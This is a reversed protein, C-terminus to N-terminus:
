RMTKQAERYWNLEPHGELDEDDYDYNIFVEDGKAIDRTARYYISLNEYDLVFSANHKPSHNYLSGNGFALAYRCEPNFTWFFVYCNLLGNHNIDDEKLLLVPACDIWQGAKIPAQAIMGRGDIGVGPAVCANGSVWKTTLPPIEM